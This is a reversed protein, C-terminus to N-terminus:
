LWQYIKSIAAAQTNVGLKRQVSKIQTRITHVSRDKIKAIDNSTMNKSLKYIVDLESPTLATHMLLQEFNDSLRISIPSITMLLQYESESNGTPALTAQYDADDDGSPITFKYDKKVTLADIKTQALLLEFHRQLSVAKFRLTNTRVVISKQKSVFVRFATNLQCVRGTTSILASCRDSGDIHDVLSQHSNSNISKMM